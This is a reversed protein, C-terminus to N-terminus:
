NIELMAFHLYETEPAVPLVPHDMAQGGWALLRCRRGSDLAAAALIKRFAERGILHSCSATLLHGGRAVLGM